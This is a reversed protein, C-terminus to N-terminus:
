QPKRDKKLLNPSMPNAGKKLSKPKNISDKAKRKAKKLSDKEKKQKEELAKYEAKKKELREKVKSYIEEYEKVNYAYYNSNEAFQISDTNYKKYIYNELDIGKEEVMKKDVGRAAKVLSIDTIIDIMENKSMLNDPKKPKDIDNCSIVLFSVLIYVLFRNM